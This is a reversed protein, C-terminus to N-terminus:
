NGTKLQLTITAGELVRVTVGSTRQLDTSPFGTRALDLWAMVRYDGPPIQRLVSRGSGDSFSFQYHGIREPVPDPVLLIVAGPVPRGESDVVTLDIRGGNPRVHIELTNHTDPPIDLLMSDRTTGNLTVSGIFYDDPLASPRIRYSGSVLEMVDFSGDAATPRIVAELQLPDLPDLIIGPDSELRGPVQGISFSDGDPLDFRGRLSGRAPVSILLDVIDQRDVELPIWADRPEIRREVDDQGVASEELSVGIRYAGDPLFVEFAGSDDDYEAPAYQTSLSEFPATGHVTVEVNRPPENTTTDVIRGSIRHLRLPAVFLDILDRTSGPAVDITGALEPEEVGPYFSWGYEMEEPSRRRGLVRVSDGTVGGTLALYRGPVIGTIRYRGADDTREEAEVVLRRTGDVLYMPRLLYVDIAAVPRADGDYVSGAVQGHPTLRIELPEHTGIGVNVRVGPLGFAPAGVEHRVYGDAAVGVGYTGESANIAFRGAADTTASVDAGRMFPRFPEPAREESFPPRNEYFVVEAGPVPLGTVADLVTGSVVVPTQTALTNGVWATSILFLLLSSIRKLQRSTM